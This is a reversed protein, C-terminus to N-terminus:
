LLHKCGDIKKNIMFLNLKNFYRAAIREGLQLNYKVGFTRKSSNM